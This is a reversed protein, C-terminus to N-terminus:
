LVGGSSSPFLVLAAGGFLVPVAILLVASARAHAAGAEIEVRAREHERLLVAGAELGRAGGGATGLVMALVAAVVAGTRTGTVSAGILDGPSGSRRAERGPGGQRLPSALLARVVHAGEDGVSGTAHYLAEPVAAGARVSRAAVEFVTAIEADIRRRHRTRRRRRAVIPSALALAVAAISGIPGAVLWAGGGILCVGIVRRTEHSAGSIMAIAM